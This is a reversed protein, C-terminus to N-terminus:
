AMSWRSAGEPPRPWPWAAVRLVIGTPDVVVVPDPSSSGVELERVRVRLERLAQLAQELTEPDPESDGSAPPIGSPDRDM